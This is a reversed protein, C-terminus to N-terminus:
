PLFGKGGPSTVQNRLKALHHPSVAAFEVAGRMTQIDGTMGGMDGTMTTMNVSMTAMDKSMSTMASEMISVVYFMYIIGIIALIVGPIAIWRNRGSRQEQVKMLHEIQKDQLMKQHQLEELTQQHDQMMSDTLSKLIDMSRKNQLQDSDEAKTFATDLTKYLDSMEKARGTESQRTYESFTTFGDRLEQVLNGMQQDRKEQERRMQGVLSEVAQLTADDVAAAPSKAKTSAKKSATKKVSAKKVSKKAAPPQNEPENDAM